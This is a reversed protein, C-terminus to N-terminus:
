WSDMCYVNCCMLSTFGHNNIMKNWWPAAPWCSHRPTPGSMTEPKKWRDGMWSCPIVWPMTKEHNNCIHSSASCFCINSGLVEARLQGTTVEAWMKSALVNGISSSLVGWNPPFTYNMWLLGLCIHFSFMWEGCLLSVNYSAKKADPSAEYMGAWHGM